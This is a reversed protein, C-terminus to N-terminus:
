FVGLKAALKNANLEKDFTSPLIEIRRNNIQKIMGLEIMEKLIISSYYKDIHFHRGMIEGKFEKVTLQKSKYKNSLQCHVLQYLTEM